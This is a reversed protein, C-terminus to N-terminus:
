CETEQSFSELSLQATIYHQKQQAKEMHETEMPYIAAMKERMEGVHDIFSKRHNELCFHHWYKERFATTEFAHLYAEVDDNDGMKPIFDSAQIRSIDQAHKMELEKVKLETIYGV